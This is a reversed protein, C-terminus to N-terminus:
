VLGLNRVPQVPHLEVKIGGFRKAILNYIWAMLAGMVFGMAGYIIPALFAFIMMFVGGFAAKKEGAFMIGLGALLFLPIFM